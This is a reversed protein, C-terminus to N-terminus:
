EINIHSKLSDIGVISYFDGINSKSIDICLRYLLLQVESLDISNNHYIDFKLFEDKAIHEEYDTLADSSPKISAVKGKRPLVVKPLKKLKILDM